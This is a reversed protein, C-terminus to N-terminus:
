NIDQETADADGAREEGREGERERESRRIGSLATHASGVIMAATACGHRSGGEDVTAAQVNGCYRTGGGV